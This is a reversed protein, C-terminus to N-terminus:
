PPRSGLAGLRPAGVIGEGFRHDPVVLGLGDATSARPPMEFGHFERGEFPDVPEILPPEEPRDTM